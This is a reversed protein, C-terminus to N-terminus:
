RDQTLHRRSHKYYYYYYYNSEPAAYDVSSIYLIIYLNVQTGQTIPHERCENWECWCLAGSRDKKGYGLDTAQTMREGCVRALHEVESDSLFRRLSVVWPDRSLVVPEYHGFDTLVRDFMLSIGGDIVAATHNQRRCTQPRHLEIAFAACGIVIVGLLMPLRCGWRPLTGLDTLRGNGEEM